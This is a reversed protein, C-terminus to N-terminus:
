PVAPAPNDCTIIEQTIWKGDGDQLAPLNLNGWDNHDTLVTLIGGCTSNGSFNIDFSVSSEILSNENWDWEPSGCIGLNENLETENLVIRDGYSYDLVGDGSPTCDNDVGPFQYKYNMVSNYNPKYNCNSNGGHRINLNHGLEHMITKSTNSDSTFCQLSVILDDGPLEAQGSSGSNTNYRHPLIVYHFYGERNAAFNAAKHSMFEADNVGGTLVGDADDIFNGGTFFGGQGRDNHFTIGTTGDPNLVPSNGFATTVLNVANRTPRHSHTSCDLSDDFWDYELFIDQRLPSAGMGPLNLGQLTGLVEDGDKIGDGDTDPNNPDTGTDTPSVYVGTNTEHCNDLRDSDSDTGLVCSSITVGVSDFYMQAMDISGNMVMDVGFYFTYTGDPLGSHNLVPYNNLDFLPGQHTVSMGPTWGGPVNFSFWSAPTRALVWWDANDSNGGANLDISVSLPDGPALTVPGDLGNAKVDPVPNNTTPPTLRTLINEMLLSNEPGTRVWDQDSCTIVEGYNTNPPSFVFGFNQGGFTLFNEITGNGGGACGYWFYSLSPVSNPTNSLSGLVNMPVLDGSLSVTWAFSGGLNNVISQFTANADYVNCEWEGQIYVMGGQQVFQEIITRSNAPLEIVGSAIILIDTTSFFDTSDLTTQPRIFATHGMLTAVSLWNDDMIHGGNFSQSEIIIISLADRAKNTAKTYYNTPLSDITKAVPPNGSSLRPPTENAQATFLNLSFFLAVLM